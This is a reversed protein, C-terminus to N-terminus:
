VLMELYLTTTFGTIEIFISRCHSKYIVSCLSVYINAYLSGFFPFPTPLRIAGSSVDLGRPVVNDGAVSGYPYFSSLPIAARFPICLILLLGLVDTSHAMHSGTFLFNINTAFAHFDRINVFQIKCNQDIPPMQKSNNLQLCELHIALM